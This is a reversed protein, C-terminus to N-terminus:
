RFRLGLPDDFGLVLLSGHPLGAEDECKAVSRPYLHLNM